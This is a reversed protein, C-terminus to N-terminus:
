KLIERASQAQPLICDGLRGCSRCLGDSVCTHGPRSLTRMGLKFAVAGIAAAAIGRLAHQMVQRRSISM